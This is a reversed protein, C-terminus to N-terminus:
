KGEKDYVGFERAAEYFALINELSTDAQVNHAPGMLYGGGEGITKMRLAVEKRIDDRSGRPLTEQIDIAGWFSLRDGYKDKIHAPDMALPQIPNLVDLGIEILDEIIPEIYGCSHYAVLIEPDKAKYASILKALRPKLFERWMDASMLMRHQMGVDDGLWIMDVGEDIMGFGAKLPFEMVKDFLAHAYDPNAAMDIITDELGHIYWGAEFISCALFACIFHSEGYKQVLERIPAYVGPAEPDPIKYADLKKGDSDNALPHEVIETYSGENNRFYRWKCGWPCTYEEGPGYFSTGIGAGAILMDNGLKVEVARIDDSGFHDKLLKESEPVYSASVPVRDPIGRLLATRVREKSNM